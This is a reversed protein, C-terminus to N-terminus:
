GEVRRGGKGRARRLGVLQRAIVGLLFAIMAFVVVLLRLLFLATDFRANTAEDLRHEFWVM